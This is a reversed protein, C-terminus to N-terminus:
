KAFNKLLVDQDFCCSISLYVNFAHLELTIQLNMAANQHYNQTGALTIPHDCHHCPPPPEPKSCVAPVWM